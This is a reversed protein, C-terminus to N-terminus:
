QSQWSFFQMRSYSDGDMKTFSQGFGFPLHGTSMQPFSGRYRSPLGDWPHLTVGLNELSHLAFRSPLGDWRQQATVLNKLRDGTIARITTIIRELNFNARSRMFSRRVTYTLM